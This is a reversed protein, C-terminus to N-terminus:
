CWSSCRACAPAWRARRCLLLAGGHGVAGRPWPRARVSRPAAASSCSRRRGACPASRASRGSRAMRAPLGGAAVAAAKGGCGGAMPQRPDPLQGPISALRSRQAGLRPIAALLGKSYPHMPRAFVAATAGQEVVQGAYLVAVEDAIRRVVSLNHTIFLTTLGRRAQLDEFLDLIQAEI